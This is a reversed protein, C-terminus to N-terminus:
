FPVNENHKSKYKLILSLIFFTILSYATGNWLSFVWVDMPIEGLSTAYFVKFGIVTVSLIFVILMNFVLLKIWFPFNAYKRTKRGIWQYYIATIVLPILILIFFSIVYGPNYWLSYPTGSPTFVFDYASAILDM